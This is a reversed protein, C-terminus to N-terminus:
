EDLNLSQVYKAKQFTERKKISKKTFSQRERVEKMMGSQNVRRKFVKLVRNIDQGKKVKVKIM